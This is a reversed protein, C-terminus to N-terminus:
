KPKDRDGSLKEELVKVIDVEVWRERRNSTSKEQTIPSIARAKQKKATGL